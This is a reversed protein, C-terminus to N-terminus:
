GDVAKDIADQNENMAWFAGMKGDRIHMVFM